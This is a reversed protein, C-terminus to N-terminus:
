PRRDFTSQRPLRVHGVLALDAAQRDDRGVGLDLGDDAVVADDAAAVFGVAPVGAVFAAGGGGVVGEADVQRLLLRRLGGGPVRWRHVIEDLLVPLVNVEDDLGVLVAHHIGTEAGHAAGADGLHAVGALAVRLQLAQGVREDPAVALELRRAPVVGEVEDGADGGRHDGLLALVPQEDGGEVVAAGAAAVLVGPPSALEVELRHLDLVDADVIARGVIGLHVARAVHADALEVVGVLVGLEGIGDDGDAGIRELGLGVVEEVVPDRVQAAGRCRLLLRLEAVLRRVAGRTTMTSGRRVTM